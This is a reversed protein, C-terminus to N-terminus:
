ETRINALVRGDALEVLKQLNALNRKSEEKFDPMILADTWIQKHLNM